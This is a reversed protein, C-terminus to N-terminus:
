KHTIMIMVKELIKPVSLGKTSIVCCCGKLVRGMNRKGKPLYKMLRNAFILRKKRQMRLGTIWRHPHAFNSHTTVLIIQM